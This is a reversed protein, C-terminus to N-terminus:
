KIVISADEFDIDYNASHGGEINLKISKAAKIDFTPFTLIAEAKVGAQVDDPYEPYDADYNTETEYQKGDVVLAYHFDYNSYKYKSANDITLNVRTEIPSQEINKIDITVGNQTDQKNVDISAETPSVAEVYSAVKSSSTAVIKVIDTGTYDEDDLLGDDVGEVYVYNDEKIEGVGQDDAIFVIVRDSSFEEDTYGIVMRGNEVKEIEMARMYFNVSKGKNGDPDSYVDTFEVMKESNYDKATYEKSCGTLLGFSAIALVMLKKM